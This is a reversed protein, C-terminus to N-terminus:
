PMCCTAYHPEMVPAARGLPLDFLALVGYLLRAQAAPVEHVVLDLRLEERQRAIQSVEQAAKRQRPREACLPQDQM